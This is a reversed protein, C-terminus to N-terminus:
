SPPSTRNLTTLKLNTNPPSPSPRVNDIESLQQIREAPTFPTHIDITAAGTGANPIPAQNPDNM